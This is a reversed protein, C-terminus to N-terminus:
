KESSKRISKRHVGYIEQTKLFEKLTDRSIEHKGDKKVARFLNEIGSYGESNKPDYYIKELYRKIAPRM